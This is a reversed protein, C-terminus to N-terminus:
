RDVASCSCSCWVASRRLRSPPSPPPEDLRRVPPPVGVPAPPAKAPPPSSLPPPPPPPPARTAPMQRSKRIESASAVRHSRARAAGIRAASPRACAAPQPSSAVRDPPTSLSVAADEALLRRTRWRGVAVAWQATAPVSPQEKKARVLEVRVRWLQLEERELVPLAQGGHQELPPGGGGRAEIEVRLRPPPPPPPARRRASAVCACM